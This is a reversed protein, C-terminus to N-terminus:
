ETEREQTGGSDRQNRRPSRSVASNAGGGAQTPNTSLTMRGENCGQFGNNRGERRDEVKGGGGEGETLGNSNNSNNANETLFVLPENTVELSLITDVKSYHFIEPMEVGLITKGNPGTIKHRPRVTTVLVRFGKNRFIRPSLKANRSPLANNAISWAIYWRSTPYRSSKFFARLKEGVHPGEIIQFTLYVKLGYARSQYPGFAECCAALYEGEAILVSYPLARPGVGPESPKREPIKEKVPKPRFFRRSKTM